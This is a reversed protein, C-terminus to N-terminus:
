MADKGSNARRGMSDRYISSHGFTRVHGFETLRTVWAMRAACALSRLRDLRTYTQLQRSILDATRRVVSLSEAM